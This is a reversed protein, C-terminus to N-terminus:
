LGGHEKVFEMFSKASADKKSLIPDKVPWKIGIDPDDWRIGGEAHPAYVNDVKYLVECNEALTCFGHAFGRPIYVMNKKEPSLILSGWKGFTPSGKRVDIFADLIEGHLVRVLKAEAHPPLQFHMGRLIGKKVSLSQNERVWNTGLGHEEFLKQEYVSAFYGREDHLPELTIEFVGEPKLRTFKM